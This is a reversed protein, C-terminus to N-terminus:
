NIEERSLKEKFIEFYFKSYINKERLGLKNALEILKKRNQEEFEKKGQVNLEIFDGLEEISSIEIEIDDYSYFRSKKHIMCSIKFNIKELFDIFQTPNDIFFSYGVTELIPGKKISSSYTVIIEYERKKLKLESSANEKESEFFYEIFEDEKLFSAIKKVKEMMKGTESIKAKLYLKIRNDMHDGEKYYILKKM